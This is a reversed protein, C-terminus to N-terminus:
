KKKRKKKRGRCRAAGGRGRGRARGRGEGEGRRATFIHALTLYDNFFCDHLSFGRESQISVSKSTVLCTFCAFGHVTLKIESVFRV